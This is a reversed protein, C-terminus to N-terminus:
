SHFDNDGGSKIILDCVKGLHDIWARINDQPCRKWADVWNQEIEENTKMLKGDKHFGKRAWNFFQEHANLDPSYPPWPDLYEDDIMLGGFRKIGAEQYAKLVWQSKRCSAGDEVVIPDIKEERLKNCLPIICKKFSGDRHRLWDVGKSRDGHTKQKKNNEYKARRGPIKRGQLEYEHEKLKEVAVWSLVDM